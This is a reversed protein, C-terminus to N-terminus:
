VLRKPAYGVFASYFSWSYCFVMLWRRDSQQAWRLQSQIACHRCWDGILLNCVKSRRLRTCPWLYNRASARNEVHVLFCDLKLQNQTSHTHTCAWRLCFCFNEQTAFAQMSKWRASQAAWRSQIQISVNTMSSNRFSTGVSSNQPPTPKYPYM